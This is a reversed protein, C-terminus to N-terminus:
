TWTWTWPVHEHEHEHFMKMYCTWATLFRLGSMFCLYAAHLCPFSVHAHLMSIWRGSCAAHFFLLYMCCPSMSMSCPHSAHAHFVSMCCQWWFPCAFYVHMIFL